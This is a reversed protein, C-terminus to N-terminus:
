LIHISLPHFHCCIDDLLDVNKLVSVGDAELHKSYICTYVFM